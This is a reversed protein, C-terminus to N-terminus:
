LNSNSIFNIFFINKLKERLVIAGGDPDVESEFDDAPIRLGDNPQLHTLRWLAKINSSFVSLDIKRWRVKDNTRFSM